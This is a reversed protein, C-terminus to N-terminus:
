GGLPGGPAMEASLAAVETADLTGSADADYRAFLVGAHEQADVAGDQNLDARAYPLVVELPAWETADVRGSADADVKEFAGMETLGGAFEAPAVLGDGDADWGSADQAFAPAAILVATAAITMKM